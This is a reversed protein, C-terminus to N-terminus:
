RDPYTYKLVKNPTLYVAYRNYIKSVNSLGINADRHLHPSFDVEEVIESTKELMYIDSRYLYDVTVVDTAVISRSLKILGNAAEWDLIEEQALSQGNVRVRIAGNKVNELDGAIGKPANVDLAIILPRHSVQITETDVVQAEEGIAIMYPYYGAYHKYASEPISYEYVFTGKVVQREHIVSEDTIGIRFDDTQVVHLKGALRIYYVYVGTMQTVYTAYLRSAGVRGTTDVHFGPKSNDANLYRFDHYYRYYVRPNLFEKHQTTGDNYAAYYYKGATPAFATYIDNGEVIYQTDSVRQDDSDLIAIFKAIAHRTTYIYFLPVDGSAKHTVLIYNCFSDNETLWGADRDLHRYYKIAHFVNTYTDREAYALRGYPMVLNCRHTSHKTEPSNEPIYDATIVLRPATTKVYALRVSEIGGGLGQSPPLHKSFHLTPMEIPPLVIQTDVETDYIGSPVVFLRTDVDVIYAPIADAGISTFYREEGDIDTTVPLVPDASLDAGVGHLDATSKLHLDLAGPTVSVFQDAPTLDNLANAGPAQLASDSTSDANDTSLASFKDKNAYEKGYCCKAITNGSGTGGIEYSGYYITNHYWYATTATKANRMGVVYGYIVNNTAYWIAATSINVYIGYVTTSTADLGDILLNSFKPRAASVNHYMYIITNNRKPTLSLGELWIHNVNIQFVAGLGPAQVRVGTNGTGNHQQGSAARIHVYYEESTTWGSLSIQEVFIGDDYCEGVAIRGQAVLDGSAAGGWDAEWANISTYDRAPNNWGITKVDEM